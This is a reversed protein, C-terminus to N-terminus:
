PLKVNKNNWYNIWGTQPVVFPVAFMRGGFGLYRYVLSPASSVKVENFNKEFFTIETGNAVSGVLRDLANIRKLQLLKESAAASNNVISTDNRYIRRLEEIENQTATITDETKNRVFQSLYSDRWVKLDNRVADSRHLGQQYGIQVVYEQDILDHLRQEIDARVKQLTPKVTALKSEVIKEMARELTWVAHPFTILVHSLSDKLEKRLSDVVSHDVNFMTTDSIQPHKAQATKWVALIASKLLRANLDTRIGKLSTNMFETMRKKEKRTRLISEVRERVAKKEKEGVVVTVSKGMLKTIYWGDDLQVPNSTENLKLSYVVQEMREDVDGFRAIASDPGEFEGEADAVFSFYELAKGRIIQRHLFEAGEQTKAFLFYIKLDNTARKMAVAIEQESITIRKQVEKRYLEDRVLAREVEKVANNVVSDNDWGENQSRLILLKEAILSLLFEAKNTEPDNKRRNIGPLMEYRSIFEKKTIVISGVTVLPADDNRQASLVLPVLLILLYKKM